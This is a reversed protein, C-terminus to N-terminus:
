EENHTLFYIMESAAKEMDLGFEKVRGVFYNYFAYTVISVSLGAASTLLAHQISGALEGPQVNVGAGRLTSFAGIMGLVTGLLGLLPTIHAITALLNLNKELQPIESLATEDVAKQINAENENRRLIAARLIHAVPGPTEDCIAIAEVDNNRKLINYLGLIFDDIELWARRYHFLRDMVIYLAIVSALLIIWMIPGGDNCLKIININM